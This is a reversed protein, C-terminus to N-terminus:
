VHQSTLFRTRSRRSARGQDGVVGNNTPSTRKLPLGRHRPGPAPCYRQRASFPRAPERRLCLARQPHFGSGGTDDNIALHLAVDMGALLQLQGGLGPDLCHTRYGLPFPPPILPLHCGSVHQRLSPHARGGFRAGGGRGADSCLASKALNIYNVLITPNLIICPRIAVPPERRVGTSM